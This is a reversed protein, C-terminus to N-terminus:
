FTEEEKKKEKKPYTVFHVLDVVEELGLVFVMVTIFFIVV